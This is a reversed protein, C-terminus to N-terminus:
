HETSSSAEDLRTWEREDLNYTHTEVAGAREAPCLLVAAVDTRQKCYAAVAERGMVYFATALADAEAATPAVATSSLVGEAPWGTRPDLIHGLRRGQHLFFQTGSGSTGLARDELRIWGLRRAPYLPNRIGVLWGGESNPGRSGRALVSSSGGHLLYDGLGQGALEESCRDLAYGKGISGLNIELGPRAFRVRHENADLELYQSGVCAMATELEEATPVKSRRRTFGWVSSLRGATVDFAGGTQRHLDVAVELLAFLRAEVEVPLIAATRNIESVESDERYISLQDELRDVLDLAAMAAASGAPYQGANQFVEFTCAMARRLLRVLYSETGPELLSATEAAGADIAALADVAAQGQLFERRTSRPTNAM